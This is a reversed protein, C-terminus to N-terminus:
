EPPDPETSRARSATTSGTPIVWQLQGPRPCRVESTQATPPVLKIWDRGDAIKYGHALLFRRLTFEAERKRRVPRAFFVRKPRSPGIYHAKRRKWKTTEGLKYWGGETCKLLYVFGPKDAQTRYKGWDSEGESYWYARRRDDFRRGIRTGLLWDQRVEFGRARHKLWIKRLEDKDRDVLHPNERLFAAETPVYMPFVLGNLRAIDESSREWSM